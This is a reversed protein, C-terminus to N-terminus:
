LLTRSIVPDVGDDTGVKIPAGNRRQQKNQACVEAVLREVEALPKLTYFEHATSRSFDYTKKWEALLDGPANLQFGGDGTELWERDALLKKVNFGQGLSVGVEKALSQM